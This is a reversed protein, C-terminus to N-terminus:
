ESTVRAAEAVTVWKVRQRIVVSPQSRNTETVEAIKGTDDLVYAFGTAGCLYGEPLTECRCETECLPCM